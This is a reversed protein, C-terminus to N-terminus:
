VTDGLSAALEGTGHIIYHAMFWWNFIHASATPRWAETEPWALTIGSPLLCREAGRVACQGAPRSPCCAAVWPGKKRGRGRVM